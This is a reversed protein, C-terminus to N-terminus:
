LVNVCAGNCLKVVYISSYSTKSERKFYCTLVDQRFAAMDRIGFATGTSTWMVIAASEKQFRHFPFPRFPPLRLCVMDIM